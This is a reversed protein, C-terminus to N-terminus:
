TEEIAKRLTTRVWASMSLGARSAAREIEGLERTTVEMNFRTKTERRRQASRRPRTVRPSKSAM